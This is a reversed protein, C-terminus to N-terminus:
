FYQGLVPLTPEALLSVSTFNPSPTEGRFNASVTCANYLGWQERERDVESAMRPPLDIGVEVSVDERAFNSKFWLTALPIMM